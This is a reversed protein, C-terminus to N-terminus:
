RNGGRTHTEKIIVDQEKKCCNCHIQNQILLSWDPHFDIHIGVCDGLGYGIRYSREINELGYSTISAFTYVSLVLRDTNINIEEISGSPILLLGELAHYVGEHKEKDLSIYGNGDRDYMLNIRDMIIYHYLHITYQPIQYEMINIPKGHIRSDM